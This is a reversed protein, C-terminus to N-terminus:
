RTTCRRRRTATATTATGPTRRRRGTAMVRPESQPSPSSSLAKARVVTWWRGSRDGYRQHTASVDATATAATCRTASRTSRVRTRSRYAAPASSADVTAATVMRKLRRGRRTVSRGAARWAARSARYGPLTWATTTGLSPRPVRSARRSSSALARSTAALRRTVSPAAARPTAFAAARATAAASSANARYSRCADGGGGPHQKATNRSPSAAFEASRASLGVSRPTRTPMRAPRIRGNRTAFLSAGPNLPPAGTGPHGPPSGLERELRTSIESGSIESGRESESRRSATSESGRESESRRSDTSESGRESGSAGRGAPDRPKPSGPAIADTESATPPPACAHRTSRAGGGDPTNHSFTPAADADRRARDTATSPATATPSTNTDLGRAANPMAFSAAFVNAGAASELAARM